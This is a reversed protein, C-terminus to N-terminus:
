RGRWPKACGFAPADLQLPPFDCGSTWKDYVGRVRKGCLYNEPFRILFVLDDQFHM